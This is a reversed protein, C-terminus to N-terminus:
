KSLICLLLFLTLFHMSQQIRTQDSNMVYKRNFDNSTDILKQQFTSIVTDDVTSKNYSKRQARVTNLKYQQKIRAITSDAVQLCKKVNNKNNHISLLCDSLDSNNCAKQKSIYQETLQKVAAKETNDTFVRHNYRCKSNPSWNEKNNAKKYESNKRKFTTYPINHQTCYQKHNESQIAETIYTNRMADGYSRRPSPVSPASM